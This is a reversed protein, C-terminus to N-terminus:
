FSTAFLRPVLVKLIRDLGSAKLYDFIIVSELSIPMFRHNAGCIESCQGFFKGPKLCNFCLQNIRGPIADVKVGLSPVTWSHLVDSSSVLLRIPSCVPVVLSNDAELLRLSYSGDSIIYSDFGDSSGSVFYSWYWQHGMVKYTVGCFLCSEIHYLSWLSPFALFILIFFPVVTWVFELTHDEFYYLSFLKYYFSDFLSGVVSIIIRYLFMIVYDNVLFILEMLYSSPYNFELGNWIIM